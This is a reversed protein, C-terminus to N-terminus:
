SMSILFYGFPMQLLKSVFFFYLEKKEQPYKREAIEHRVAWGTFVWVSNTIAGQFLVLPKHDLCM